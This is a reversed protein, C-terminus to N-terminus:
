TTLADSGIANTKESSFSKSEYGVTSRHGVSMTGPGLSRNANAVM